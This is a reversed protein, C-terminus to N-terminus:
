VVAATFNATSNDSLTITPSIAIASSGEVFTATNGAGVIPNDHVTINFTQGTITGNAGDSVTFAIADSNTNSGNHVNVVSGANIDAQTSPPSRVARTRPSSLSVM